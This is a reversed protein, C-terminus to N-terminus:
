WYGLCSCFGDKFHHFRARDRVIIEANFIRSILKTVEHCDNCIRLNKFIRIPVGPKVHLLGFAIALRESHLQLANQKLDDQEDVLPAQSLDPIYGISQLRENIMDLIRYIDNTQPHCTDGAFFEHNTGDVEISSCGPEKTVGRDTMLKRILGVNNWRAASAYIRSLLVYVGSSSSGESELIKKAVRESLKMSANKKCCADLLSRWIVLDPKLPMNLVLDLAEDVLGARALLDVLCGYHELQPKIKYDMVMMDFYKRGQNVLGRHNCATLVGVFTISNPAYGDVKVMSDLYEFAVRAKGHTAFGLIISNWSNVDRRSMRDFLQQAFELMGCKCYMDVLANNVLVDVRVTADCVRLAYAHAWMGLSLAGLSACACTVSQLTYEDPEFLKQMHIFLKLASDFEGLQVLADIVVNWSVASKTPMKDFVKRACELLGCSAYFHILSNNIYVDSAFGLKVVHAHAQKGEFEDFLYACAKLVFPFTHNDAVVRGEKLMEHYLLFAYSKHAHSQACARILTNWIFSNPSHIQSFLRFSYDIDRSSIFHFLKCYLILDNNLTTRLAQAHIQKFQSVSACQSLVSLLCANHHDSTRADQYNSTTAAAGPGANIATTCNFSFSRHPPSPAPALIM